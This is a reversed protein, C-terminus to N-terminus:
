LFGEAGDAGCGRLIEVAEQYLARETDSFDHELAILVLALRDLAERVIRAEEATM